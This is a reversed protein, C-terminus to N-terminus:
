SRLKMMSLLEPLTPKRGAAKGSQKYSYVQQGDVLIELEGM